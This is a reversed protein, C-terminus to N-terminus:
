PTRPVRGTPHEPRDHSWLLYRRAVDLYSDYVLGGTERVLRDRHRQYWANYQYWPIM